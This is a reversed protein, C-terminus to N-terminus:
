FIEFVSAVSVFVYALFLLFVIGLLVIPLILAAISRGIGMEYNAQLAMVILGIGWIGSFFIIGESLSEPLIFSFTRVLTGISAPINCFCMASLFGKWTGQGGLMRATGHFLAVNIFQMAAGGGFLGILLWMSTREWWAYMSIATLAMTLFWVIGGEYLRQEKTIVALTAKPATVVGYALIMAKEIQQKM